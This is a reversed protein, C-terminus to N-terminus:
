RAQNAAVTSRSDDASEKAAPKIVVKSRAPTRKAAASKQSSSTSKVSRKPNKSRATKYAKPLSVPTAPLDPLNPTAGAKVPVLLPLGTRFNNRATIGNVQKLESISIGYQKAIKEPKEGKRMTHAQWSVLPESYSELNLNFAAVKDRPLVITETGDAKIVPKNHAPNLFRFEGLPMGALQAALKVDIHQQVTVIEFYPTNPVSALQM